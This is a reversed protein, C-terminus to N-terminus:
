TLTVEPRRTWRRGAAHYRHSYRGSQGCLYVMAESIDPPTSSSWRCCTRCHPCRRPATEQLAPRDTRQAADPTAVGTPHVTNVRINKEALRQRLLADPRCRWAKGSTAPRATIEPSFQTCTRNLGAASSTIVIAGGDGNGAACAACGRHHLVGRQAHRRGCDVYAGVEHMQEGVGALGPTPWSSTSAGWNTVGNAVAAKLRGFDRM